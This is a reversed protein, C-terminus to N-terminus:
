GDGSETIEFRVRDGISLDDLIQKLETGLNQAFQSDVSVSLQIGM